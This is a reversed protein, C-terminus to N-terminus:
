LRTRAQGPGIRPGEGHESRVKATFPSFSDSPSSRIALAFLIHLQVTNKRLRKYRIKLHGFLNKVM